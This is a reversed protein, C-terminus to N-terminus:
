QFFMFKSNIGLKKAAKSKGNMQTNYGVMSKPTIYKNPTNSASKTKLVGQRPTKAPQYPIDPSEQMSRDIEKFSSFENQSLAFSIRRKKEKEKLLNITPNKPKEASKSKKKFVIAQSNTPKPTTKISALNFDGWDTNEFIPSKPEENTVSQDLKKDKSKKLKKKEKKSLKPSSEPTTSIIKESPEPNKVAESENKPDTHIMETTKSVKKKKAKKVKPSNQVEDEPIEPEKTPTPVNETTKVKNKKTKKKSKEDVIPKEVSEIPEDEVKKPESSESKPQNKKSKKKPSTSEGNQVKMESKKAELDEVKSGHKKKKKKAPPPAEIPENQEVDNEDNETINNEPILDNEADDNQEPEEIKAHKRKLALKFDEKERQISELRFCLHISNM